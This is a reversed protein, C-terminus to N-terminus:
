RKSLSSFMEEITRAVVARAYQQEAWVRAARGQRAGLAPDAIYAALVSTLAAPDNEPDTIAGFEPRILDAVGEPGTAV